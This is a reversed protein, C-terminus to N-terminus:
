GGHFTKQENQTEMPNEVYVIIDDTFLSLKIKEKRIKANKRAQQM